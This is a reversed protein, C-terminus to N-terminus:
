APPEDRRAHSGAQHPRARAQGQLLGDGAAILGELRQVLQAAARDHDTTAGARQRAQLCAVIRAREQELRALHEQLQAPRMLHMKRLSPSPQGLFAPDRTKMNWRTGSGAPSAVLRRAEALLHFPTASM